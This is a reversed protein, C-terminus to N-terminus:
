SATAAIYLSNPKYEGGGNKAIDLRYQKWSLISSTDFTYKKVDKFGCNRLLDSLNFEDYMWQHTEGRKRADGFLLNELKRVLVKQGSTGSCERRVSQELLPYFYQNHAGIAGPSHECIACHEIYEACLKRFDPVVVRLIGEPKLVRFTESLFSEAVTFDLHELLHSHYVVDVSHDPFPIGKELNHVMINDSISTYRELRIPSLVMPSIVKFIKNQRLRLEISWDINIVEPFTSTKAGCGLNLIKM